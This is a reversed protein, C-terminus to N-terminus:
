SGGGFMMGAGSLVKEFAAPVFLGLFLVGGGLLAPPLVATVPERVPPGERQSRGQAMQLVTTVVGIFVVGLLSLYIGAVIWRGADLTSRLIVFESVFTGFPPSGAIALGGAMWLTGSWPMGRLLGRVDNVNKSGYAALINGALLFLMAKALSHNVAHLMVGFTAEGGLGVGLALVGMHEVSSYALLRKFDPQRLIFVAAVAMSLLGFTILLGSSFEGQGAANTVQVIRLIALFATNLLAGSLLASVLSPAESHADPLWTHMPALGMKTGYGVLFLIFAGRLWATDISGATAVLGDVTLVAHPGGEPRSAAIALFINGLLALAIGVSSIILYKWAAELSRHQKHFYILPASSLTTAEVGVWLLGLHRSVTVLSMSTLFLLLCAIFIAEPANYFRYGSELEVHRVGAERRLYGVGYIAAALFLGSTISLFLLGASDLGIWGDFLLGPRDLWAWAVGAANGTAGALLIGRRISANTVLFAAVASVLPALLIVLIAAM